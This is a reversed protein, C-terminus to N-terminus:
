LIQKPTTHLFSGYYPSVYICYAWQCIILKLHQAKYKKEHFPIKKKLYPETNKGSFPHALGNVVSPDKRPFPLKHTTFALMSEAGTIKSSSSHLHDGQVLNDSILQIVSALEESYRDHDKICIRFVIVAM